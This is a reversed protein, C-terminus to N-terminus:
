YSKNTINQQNEYNKFRTKIFADTPLTIPSYYLDSIEVEGHCRVAVLIRNTAFCREALVSQAKKGCHHCFINQWKQETM